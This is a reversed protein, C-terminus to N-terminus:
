EKFIRLMKLKVNSIAKKFYRKKEFRTFVKSFLILNVFTWVKNEERNFKSWTMRRQLKKELSEEISISVSHNILGLDQAKELDKIYQDHIKEYDINYKNDSSFYNNGHIRYFVLPHDHNIVSGALLCRLLVTSDETPTEPRLPGFLEFISKRFTRAAGNVHLNCNQILHEISYKKYSNVLESPTVITRYENEFTVTSFSIATCDLNENLIDWSLQAREPMSIDDGGALIVFDSNVFEIVKNLHAALGLNQENRNLIIEHQGDYKSVVEKIIEFTRDSSCDDSIIIELPSFTQSLAGVVAERIFQEQNYAIIVFSMLPRKANM